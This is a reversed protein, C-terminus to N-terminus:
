SLQCISFSYTLTHIKRPIYRKRVWFFILGIVKKKYISTQYPIFLGLFCNELGTAVHCAITILAQKGSKSINHLSFVIAEFKGHFAAM